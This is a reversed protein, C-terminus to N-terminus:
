KKSLLRLALYNGLTILSYYLLCLFIYLVALVFVTSIALNNFMRYNLGRILDVVSDIINIQNFYKLVLSLIAAAAIVINIATYKFSFNMRQKYLFLTYFFATLMALSFGIIMIITPAWAFLTIRKAPEVPINFFYELPIIRYLFLGIIGYYVTNATFWIGAYGLPRNLLKKIM